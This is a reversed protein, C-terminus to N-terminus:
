GAPVTTVSVAAGVAGEVNPPHSWAQEPVPAQLTVMFEACDTVADNTGGGCATGTGSVGPM